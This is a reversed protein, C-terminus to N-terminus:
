TNPSSNMSSLSAASPKWPFATNERQGTLHASTSRKGSCYLQYLSRWFRMPPAAGDKRLEIHVASLDADRGDMQLVPRVALAAPHLHLRHQVLHLPHKGTQRDNQAAVQIGVCEVSSVFVIDTM